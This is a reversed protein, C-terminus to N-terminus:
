QDKVGEDRTDAVTKRDTRVYFCINHKHIRLRSQRQKLTSLDIISNYENVCHIAHTTENKNQNAENM